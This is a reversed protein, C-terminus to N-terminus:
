PRCSVEVLGGRGQRRAVGGSYTRADEGVGVDGRLVVWTALAPDRSICAVYIVHLVPRVLCVFVTYVDFM